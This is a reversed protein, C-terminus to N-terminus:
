HAAQEPNADFSQNAKNLFEVRAEISLPPPAEFTDPDPLDRDIGGIKCFRIVLRATATTAASAKCFFDLSERDFPAPNNVTNRIFESVVGTYLHQLRQREENDLTRLSDARIADDYLKQVLKQNDVYKYYAVRREQSKDRFVTMNFSAIAAKRMTEEDLDPKVIQTEMFAELISLPIAVMVDRQPEKEEAPKAQVPDM